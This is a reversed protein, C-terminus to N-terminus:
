RPCLLGMGACSQKGFAGSGVTQLPDGRLVGEVFWGRRRGQGWTQQCSGTSQRLWIGPPSSKFIINM